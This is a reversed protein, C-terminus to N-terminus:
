TLEKSHRLRVPSGKDAAVKISSLRIDQELTNLRLRLIGCVNRFSLERSTAGAIM